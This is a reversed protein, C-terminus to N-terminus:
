VRNQEKWSEPLHAYESDINVWHVAGSMNSSGGFTIAEDPVAPNTPQPPAFRHLRALQEAGLAEAWSAFEDDQVRRWAPAGGLGERKRRKSRWSAHVKAAAAEVEPTPTAMTPTVPVAPAGIPLTGVQLMPAGKAKKRAFPNKRPGSAVTALPLTLSTQHAPEHAEDTAPFHLSESAFNRVSESVASVNHSKVHDPANSKMSAGGRPVKPSEYFSLAYPHVLLADAYARSNYDRDFCLALFARLDDDDTVLTHAVREECELPTESSTTVHKFLHFQSHIHLCQWPPRGTAMNLVYCGFSWVDTRRGLQTENMVEPSMFFPTAGTLRASSQQMTAAMPENEPALQASGFDSLKATGHASILVNAPKIDRHLVGNSHLYALGALAECSYKRVADHKFAGFEDLLAAVSGGSAMELFIFLRDGTEQLGYFEVINPHSLRDLLLLEKALEERQHRRGTNFAMEKVAIIGGEATMGEYVVSTTGSGVVKGKSWQDSSWQSRYSESRRRTLSTPRPSASTLDGPSEGTETDDYDEEGDFRGDDEDDVEDDEEDKFAPGRAKRRRRIVLLLVVAAAAAAAAVPLTKRLSM